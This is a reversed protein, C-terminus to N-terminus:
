RSHLHGMIKGLPRNPCSRAIHGLQGCGFCTFANNPNRPGPPFVPPSVAMSAPPPGSNWRPVFNQPRQDGTRNNSPNWPPRSPYNTTPQGMGNGNPPGNNWQLTPVLNPNQQEMGVIRLSNDVRGPQYGRNPGRNPPNKLGNILRELEKVLNSNEPVPEPGNNSVARAQVDRREDRRERRRSNDEGHVMRQNAELTAALNYCGLLDSPMKDRVRLELDPDNLSLLFADVALRDRLRSRTGPYAQMVLKNVDQYLCQLSENKGRKRARLQSEFQTEAGEIGFCLKLERCIDSYTAWKDISVLVQAAQGELAGKLQFLKDMSNWGNYDSCNEFHALFTEWSTKGEFRGPKIFGKNPKAKGRRSRTAVFKRRLNKQSVVDSDGDTWDSPSSQRIKGEDRLSSLNSLVKRNRLIKNPDPDRNVNNFGPKFQSTVSRKRRHNQVKADNDSSTWEESSSLREDQYSSPNETGIKKKSFNSVPNENEKDVGLKNLLREYIKLEIAESQKNQEIESPVPERRQTNNGFKPQEEQDNTDGGSHPWHKLSSQRVPINDLPSSPSGVVPPRQATPMRRVNNEENNKKIKSLVYNYLELEEEETLASNKSKNNLYRMYTPHGENDEVLKTTNGTLVEQNNHSEKLPDRSGHYTESYHDLNHDERLPLFRNQRFTVEPDSDNEYNEIRSREERHSSHNESRSRNRSTVQTETNRHIESAETESSANQRREVYESNTENTIQRPPMDGSIRSNNEFRVSHYSEKQNDPLRNSYTNHAAYQDFGYFDEEDEQPTFIKPNGERPVNYDSDDSQETQLIPARYLERKQRRSPLANGAAYRDEEELLPLVPPDVQHAEVRQPVPLSGRKTTIGSRVGNTAFSPTPPHIAGDSEGHDNEELHTLVSNRVVETILSGEAVNGTPSARDPKRSGVKTKTKLKRGM